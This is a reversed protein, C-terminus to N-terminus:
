RGLRVSEPHGAAGLANWGIPVDAQLAPGALPYRLGGVGGGCLCWLLVLFDSYGDDLEM